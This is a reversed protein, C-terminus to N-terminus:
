TDTVIIAGDPGVAVAATRPPGNGTIRCTLPQDPAPQVVASGGCEVQAGPAGLKTRVAAAIDRVLAIPRQPRAEFRGGVLRQVEYHLLAGGVAVTCTAAGGAEDPLETPCTAAGVSLDPLTRAVERELYAQVEVQTFAVGGRGDGGGCAAASAVLSLIAATGPRM